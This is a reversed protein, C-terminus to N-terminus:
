SLLVALNRDKQASLLNNLINKFGLPINKIYKHSM